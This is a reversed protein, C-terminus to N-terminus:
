GASLSAVAPPVSLVDASVEELNQPTALSSCFDKIAGQDNIWGNNVFVIAKLNIFSWRANAWDYAVVGVRRGAGGGSQYANLNAQINTVSPPLPAQQVSEVVEFYYYGDTGTPEVQSAGTIDGNINRPVFTYQSLTAM